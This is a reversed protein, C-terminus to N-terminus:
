CKKWNQWRCTNTQTCRTKVTSKILNTQSTRRFNTLATKHRVWNIQTPSPTKKNVVRPPSYNVSRTTPALRRHNRPRNPYFLRTRRNVGYNLQQRRQRRPEDPTDSHKKKTPISPERPLVQPRSRYESTMITTRHSRTQPIRAQRYLSM